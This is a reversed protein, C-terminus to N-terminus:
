KSYLVTFNTAFPPQAIKWDWEKDISPFQNKLEEVFVSFGETDESISITTEPLTIDLLIEDITGLDRKYADVREIEEWYITRKGTKLNVTFCKEFYQFKGFDGTNPLSM